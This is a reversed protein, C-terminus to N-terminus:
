SVIGTQKKQIDSNLQALSYTVNSGMVFGIGTMFIVNLAIFSLHNFASSYLDIFVGGVVAFVLGTLIPKLPGSKDYWRGSLASLIAVMAAGPFMFLGAVTATEGVGISHLKSIYVIIWTCNRSLWSSIYRQTSRRLSPVAQVVLACKERNCFFAAFAVVVVGLYVSLHEIAM